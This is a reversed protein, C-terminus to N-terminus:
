LTLQQQGAVSVSYNKTETKMAARGSPILVSLYWRVFSIHHFRITHAAAPQHSIFTENKPRFIIFKLSSTSSRPRLKRLICSPKSVALASQLFYTWSLKWFCKVYKRMFLKRFSSSNKKTLNNCRNLLKYFQRSVERCNALFKTLFTRNNWRSKLPNISSGVLVGCRECLEELDFTGNRTLMYKTNWQLAWLFSSFWEFGNSIEKESITLWLPIQEPFKM